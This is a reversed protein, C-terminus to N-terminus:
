NKSMEISRNKAAELVGEILRDMQHEYFYNL